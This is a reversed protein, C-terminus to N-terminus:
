PRFTANNLSFLFRRSYMDITGVDACEPSPMPFRMAKSHSIACAISAFRIAYESSSCAVTMSTLSIVTTYCASKPKLKFPIHCLPSTINLPNSQVPLCSSQMTLIPATSERQNKHLPSCTNSPGWINFVQYIHVIPCTYFIVYLFLWKNSNEDRACINLHSICNYSKKQM